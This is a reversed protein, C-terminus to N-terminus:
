EATKGHAYTYTGPRLVKLVRSLEATQGNRHTCKGEPVHSEDERGVTEHSESMGGCIIRAPVKM